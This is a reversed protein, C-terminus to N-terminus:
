MKEPASIGLVAFGNRLVQQVARCLQLRSRSLEKDETVVRCDHYFKHFATAVENLYNGIHHIEYNRASMELVGPFDLLKKMLEIESQHDLNSFSGEDTLSFGEDAAFRLISAIRAHAYQLYYVPNKESQEQALKIDFELHTNVGRMIFFYRVADVGVDDILDNLYYVNGSRKSMKVSEGENVFSVMQHIIVDIHGTEHGLAKVGAIVDPYAAMHDAGFIDIIKDYGRQVKEIHYAIDPLRYTPEGTSKVIVRDKDTGFATTRLWTAGEQEYSLDKEKFQQLVADIKGEKYLADENFFVDHKVGLKDLTRTIHAFCWKEGEGRFFDLAADRKAEGHEEVIGRGIEKVYDGVYHVKEEDPADGLAELYRERVTEALNNMQNGANNFYYERTVDWGTWELLNCLTAGICVQRGHGAHLPGTPNASVWEVNVRGSSDATKGYNGAEKLIRFAEDKVYGDAFRFNIFGPGAIEVAAIKEDDRQFHEVLETAIQRPNKKEQKALTMAVNTALDGHEPQNPAELQISAPEVSVGAATLAAHIRERLYEKM